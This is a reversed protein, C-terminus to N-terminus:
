LDDKLASPLPAVHLSQKTTQNSADLHKSFFFM